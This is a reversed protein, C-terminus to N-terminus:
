GDLVVVQLNGLFKPPFEADLFREIHIYLVPKAVTTFIFFYSSLLIKEKKMSLEKTRIWIFSNLMKELNMRKEEIKKAAM